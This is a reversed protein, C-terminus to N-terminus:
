PAAGKQMRKMFGAETSEFITLGAFKAKLAGTEPCAAVCKLCMICDEMMIQPENVDDAIEKIQLDCVSYCDGCRTCKDGDKILRFAAPKSLLYHFASMPCFFCWFRKKIFSGVFFLGTTMAGLVTMVIKTPTSFDIVFQRFDFTFAPIILRGPCIMCFPASMDHSFYGAGIGLPIVIMLALLV